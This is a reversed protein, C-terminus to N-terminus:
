HSGAGPAARHRKLICLGHDSRHLRVPAWWGTMSLPLSADAEEIQQDGVIQRLLRRNRKQYSM